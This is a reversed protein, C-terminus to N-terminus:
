LQILKRAMPGLNFLADLISLDPVFAASTFLVQQYTQGATSFTFSRYDINPNELYIESTNMQIKLDLASDIFSLCNQNFNVLHSTKQFILDHIEKEYHEFYPSAAYNALLCRWHDRRWGLDDSVIIDKTFTKNGNPRIVPISLDQKGNATLVSCRNRFTQKVYNEGIDMLVDESECLTKLYSIPPFYATPFVTM